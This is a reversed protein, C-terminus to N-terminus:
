ANKEGVEPIATNREEVLNAELDDPAFGHTNHICYTITNDELALMMHKKHAKVFIGTPATFDGLLEDECWVRLKGSALMSTHDYVHAHQPVVYGAKALYLQKIFIEDAGHFEWKDPQPIENTFTVGALDKIAEIDITGDNM